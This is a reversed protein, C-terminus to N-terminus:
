WSEPREDRFVDASDLLLAELTAVDGAVVAQEATRWVTSSSLRGRSVEITKVFRSWSEIGYERAVVLQADALMPQAPPRPHHERLRGLAEHDGRRWQKLLDKAQKRYQELNPRLPLYRAPM